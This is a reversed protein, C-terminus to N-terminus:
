GGISTRKEVSTDAVGIRIGKAKAVLLGIKLKVNKLATPEKRADVVFSQYLACSYVSLVTDLSAIRRSFSFLLNTLM